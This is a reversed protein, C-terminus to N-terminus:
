QTKNAGNGNWEICQVPGNNNGILFRKTTGAPGSIPVIDKLDGTLNLGAKVFHLPTFSGLGNGKLYLGRGADARGTEVESVYLNGGVLLDLNHDGDFDEMVIANIPAIQAM